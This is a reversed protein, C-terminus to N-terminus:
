KSVVSCSSSFRAFFIGLTPIPFWQVMMLAMMSLFALIILVYIWTVNFKPKRNTSGPENDGPVKKNARKNENLDAM